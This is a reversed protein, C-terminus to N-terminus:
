PSEFSSGYLRFELEAYSQFFLDCYFYLVFHNEKPIENKLNSNSQRDLLVSGRQSRKQESM